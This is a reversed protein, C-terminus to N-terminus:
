QISGALEFIPFYMLVVIVGIVLGIFVMLLPEFVRTFREVWRATAEEHFTAIREMMEGMRGTREGVRLLRLAIPTTLGYQEMALSMPRGEGIASSALTLRERLAPQLLESAMHLATVVPMGARLLMGLSRYFRALQYEHLRRGLTPIRWVLRVLRDRALPRSVAYIAGAVGVAVVALVLAAHGELLQGWRM